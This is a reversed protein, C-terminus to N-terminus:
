RAPPSRSSPARRAARSRPPRASAGTSAAADRGERGIAVDPRHRAHRSATSSPTPSTSSTTTPSACSATARPPSPPTRAATARSRPRRGTPRGATPRSSSTTRRSTSTSRSPRTTPPMSPPTRTPSRCAAGERRARPVEGRARQPHAQARRRDSARPSRGETGTAESLVDTIARHDYLQLREAQALARELRDPRVTAALDLLTRAITTIPIGEHTTTDRADLSARGTCASGRSATAAARRRQRRRTDPGDGAAGLARRRQPPQAGRGARVRAGGRAAAGRAAPATASRTCAATSGVLRGGRVAKTSRAAGVGAARLQARSVVGCQARPWSPWRAGPPHAPNM